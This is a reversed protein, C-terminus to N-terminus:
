ETVYTPEGPAFVAWASEYDCNDTAEIGIYYDAAVYTAYDITVDPTHSTMSEASKYINIIPTSTLDNIDTLRLEVGYADYYDTPQELNEGVTVKLVGEPIAGGQTLRFHPRIGLSRKNTDFTVDKSIVYQHNLKAVPIEILRELVGTGIKAYYTDTTPVEISAHATIKETKIIDRVPCYPLLQIDYVVGAGAQQALAQAANMAVSKNTVCKLTNGEYLALDDSYPIAFMHYPADKLVPTNAPIKAKCEAFIERLGLAHRNYSWELKFTNERPNGAIYEMYGGLEEITRDIGSLFADYLSSGLTIYHSDNVTSKAGDGGFKDYPKYFKTGIKIVPERKVFNFFAQMQSEPAFLLNEKAAIQDLVVEKFAHTKWGAVLQNAMRDRIDFFWGKWGGDDSEYLGSNGAYSTECYSVNGNHACSVIQGVNYRSFWRWYYIDLRVSAIWSNLTALDGSLEPHATFFEEETAYTEDAFADSAEPGEITQETFTVPTLQGTGDDRDKAVYGVVWGCQTEDKILFEDSKIQNTTINEKNYIAPDNNDQVIGKEVFCTAQEIESLNDAIVDRKLSLKYQGLRTYQCEIVFWRSKITNTNNATEFCVLYDPGGADSWDLPKNNDIQDKSGVVLETAIGDNPNFNIGTFTIYSKSRETYESTTNYKTIIRNTYNNFGRLFLINM